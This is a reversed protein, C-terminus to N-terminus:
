LSCRAAPVLHRVFDLVGWFSFLVDLISGRRVSRRTLLQAVYSVSFLVLLLVLMVMPVEESLFEGASSYDPLAVTRVRATRELYSPWPPWLVFVCM